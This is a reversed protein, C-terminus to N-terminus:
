SRCGRFPRAAAAAVAPAERARRLVAPASAALHRVAQVRAAPARALAPVVPVSAVAVAQAAVDVDVIAHLAPFPRGAM